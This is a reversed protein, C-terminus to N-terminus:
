RNLGVSSCLVSGLALPGSPRIEAVLLQTVRPLHRQIDDDERTFIYPAHSFSGLAGEQSWLSDVVRMERGGELSSRWAKMSSVIAENKEWCVLM